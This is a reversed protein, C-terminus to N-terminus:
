IEVKGSEEEKEDGEAETKEKERKEEEIELREEEGVLVENSSMEVYPRSTPRCQTQFLLPM